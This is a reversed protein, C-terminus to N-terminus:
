FVATCTYFIPFPPLHKRLKERTKIRTRIIYLLAVCEIIIKFVFYITVFSVAGIDVFLFVYRRTYEITINVRAQTACLFLIKPVMIYIDHVNKIM